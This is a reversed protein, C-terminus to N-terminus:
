YDIKLRCSLKEVTGERFQTIKTTKADIQTINQQRPLRHPQWHPTASDKSSQRCLYKNHGCCVVFSGLTMFRIARGFRIGRRIKPWNTPSKLGTWIQQNRHGNTHLSRSTQSNLRREPGRMSGSKPDSQLKQNNKTLLVTQTYSQKKSINPKSNITPYNLITNPKLDYSM